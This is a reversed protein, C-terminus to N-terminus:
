GDTMARHQEIIRCAESVARELDDNVIRADYVGERTGVEIEQRAEELRRRISECNDRGRGELRRLLEQDDPPLVFILLAEPMAQKVQLAGQVDIDLIVLRGEALLREVPERPTGYYHRGYVQAYELLAGRDIRDQFQGTTLFLYDRGEIEGAAKPRTTASVSFSGGLRQEVDRAITTKGSGSPGSIVLLLGPPRDQQHKM